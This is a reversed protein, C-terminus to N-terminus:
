RGKVECQSWKPDKYKLDPATEFPSLRILPLPDAMAHVAQETISKDIGLQEDQLVPLGTQKLLDDPTSPAIVQDQGSPAHEHEASTESKMKSSPSATMAISASQAEGSRESTRDNTSPRMASTSTKSGPLVTKDSQVNLESSGDDDRSESPVPSTSHMSEARSEASPKPSQDHTTLQRSEEPPSGSVIDRQVGTPRELLVAFYALLLIGTGLSSWFLLGRYRDPLNNQMGSWMGAKDFSSDADEFAEKYLKDIRHDSPKSM